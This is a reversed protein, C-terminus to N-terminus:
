HSPLNLCRQMGLLKTEMLTLKAGLFQKLQTVEAKLLNLEGNFLQCNLCNNTPVAFISRQSILLHISHTFHFRVTTPTTPLLATNM